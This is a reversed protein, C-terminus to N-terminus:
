VPFFLTSGNLDVWTSLYEYEKDYYYEFVFEPYEKEFDSVKRTAIALEKFTKCEELKALMTEYALLFEKQELRKEM